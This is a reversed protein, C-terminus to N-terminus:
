HVPTKTAFGHSKLWLNCDRTWELWKSPDYTRSGLGLGHRGKEYIHLEFPVGAKALAEGFMISNIPLVGKDEATAWVFTPPTDKTVHLQNSLEHILEPSPNEGLLNRRSGAHVSPGDMTIVPYCCVGIDPRCSLADIPDTSNAPKNEPSNFHTLLTSALHGGASSGIIGVRNTDVNWESARARVTRIARAADQLMAPHRYGASGLRYKLVFAAIGQENLWLAYDHGEHPALGAYGGGPCVVMAATPTKSKPLFVTLTPTDKAEKGLAGPVGNPWLPIEPNALAAFSLLSILLALRATKMPGSFLDGVAFHLM